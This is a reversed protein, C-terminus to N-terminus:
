ELAISGLTIACGGISGFLDADVKQLDVEAKEYNQGSLDDFYVNEAEYAQYLGWACGALAIADLGVQVRGTASVTMTLCGFATFAAGTPDGGLVEILTGTALSSGISVGCGIANLIVTAKVTRLALIAYDVLEERGNPDIRNVPDGGAYLYKHLTAPIRRLGDLPDRSMFRGTLPNYYRARLYYL